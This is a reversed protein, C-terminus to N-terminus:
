KIKLITGWGEQVDVLVTWVGWTVVEWVHPVNLSFTGLVNFVNCVNIEVEVWCGAVNNAVEVWCVAVLKVRNTM